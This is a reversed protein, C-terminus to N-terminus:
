AQDPRPPGDQKEVAHALEVHDAALERLAVATDPDTTAGALRLLTIAQLRHYESSRVM